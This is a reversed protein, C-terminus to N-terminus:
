SLSLLSNGRQANEKAASIVSMQMEYRRAGNIMEVMGDVASVNSGELAGGLVGLADGRALVQPTDEPPRFLGDDGRRLGAEGPEVLKLRAVEVLADPGEGQGIASITGDEGISLEAGMPVLIPGGDGLVPRGGVSMLGNGDVQLDGRRTYAETGDQAQVALWADGKMAVDLPRDTATVPGSTFDTAPTSAAVAARTALAAEGQVPVARMATLEARFGSTSANALNHSVVSQQEVTQRAGTMATYILRDM